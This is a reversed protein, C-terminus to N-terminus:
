RYKNGYFDEMLKFAETVIDKNVEMIRKNNFLEEKSFWRENKHTNLNSDTEILYFYHLYDKNTQEPICYKTHMLSGIFQITFQRIEYKDMIYNKVEQQYPIKTPKINPFLYCNWDENFYQLYNNNNKIILINHTSSM